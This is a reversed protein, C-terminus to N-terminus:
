GRHNNQLINKYATPLNTIWWKLYTKSKPTIRNTDTIDKVAKPLDDGFLETTIPNSPACLYRYSPHLEYRLAERRRINLERSANALLQVWDMLTDVVEQKTPWEAKTLLDNLVQIVASIGKILSKQSRQLKVDKTRAEESINNWIALNVKTETLAECNKPKGYRKRLETLKDDDVKETLLNKAIDALRANIEPIEQVTTSYQKALNKLIDQEECASNQSDDAKPPQRARPRTKMRSTTVKVTLFRSM